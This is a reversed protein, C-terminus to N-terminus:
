PGREISSSSSTRAALDRQVKEHEAALEGQFRTLWANAQVVDGLRRYANSIQFLLANDHRTRNKFAILYHQVADAYNGREYQVKGLARSAEYDLPEIRLARALYKGALDPEHLDAYAQGVRRLAALSYPDARIEAEYEPVAHAFDHQSMFINGLELHIQTAKPNVALAERYEAAAKIDDGSARNYEAKLQHTRYSAPSRSLFADLSKLALSEGTKGLWYWAEVSEPKARTFALLGSLAEEPDGDKLAASLRIIEPDGRPAVVPGGRLSRLYPSDPVLSKIAEYSQFLIRSCVRSQFFLLDLDSPNSRYAASLALASESFDGMQFYSMGLWKRALPNDPDLGLASRLQPVAARPRSTLYYDIGLFLHPAVLNPDLGLAERFESIAKPYEEALHWMMGLNSHAEATQPSLAVIAEWEGAAAIFNGHQQAERARRLHVNIAEQDGEAASLCLVTVLPILLIRM